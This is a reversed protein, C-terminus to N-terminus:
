NAAHGQPLGQGERLVLRCLSIVSDTHFRGARIGPAPIVPVERGVGSVHRFQYALSEPHPQQEAQDVQGHRLSFPACHAGWHGRGQLRGRIEAPAGKRDGRGGSSGPQWSPVNAATVLHGADHHTLARQGLWIWNSWSLFFFFSMEAEWGWAVCSLGWLRAMPLSMKGDGCLILCVAPVICSLLADKPILITQGRLTIREWALSPPCPQDSPPLAHPYKLM